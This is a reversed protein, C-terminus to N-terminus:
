YAIQLGTTTDFGISFGSVNDKWGYIQPTISYNEINGTGGTSAGFQVSNVIINSLKYSFYHVTAGKKYVKVEIVATTAQTKNGLLNLFGITNRDLQKTFNFSQWSVSGPPGPYSAGMSLSLMPLPNNILFLSLAPYGVLFSYSLSDTGVVTPMVMNVWQTGNYFAPTKTSKDYVMLGVEPSNILSSSNVRPLLVGKNTSNIRLEANVSTPNLEVQSFASISSILILFLALNKM